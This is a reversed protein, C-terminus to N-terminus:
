LLHTELNNTNRNRKSVRASSHYKRDEGLFELAKGATRETEKSSHFRLREESSDTIMLHLIIAFYERRKFSCKLQFNIDYCIFIIVLATEKKLKRQM